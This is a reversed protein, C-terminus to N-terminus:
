KDKSPKYGPPPKLKSPKKSMAKYYKGALKRATTPHIKKKKAM